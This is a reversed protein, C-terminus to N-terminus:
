RVRAYRLCDRGDPTYKALPGECTFGLLELWRHAQVHEADCHAELRRWATNRLWAKAAYHMRRMGEQGIDAAILGWLEGRGEWMRVVGCCAVVRGDLVVTQAEHQALAKGYAPNAVDHRADAQFSQLSLQALHEPKFTEIM